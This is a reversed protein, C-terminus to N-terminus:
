KIELHKLTKKFYQCNQLFFYTSDFEFFRFTILLFKISSMRNWFRNRNVIVVYKSIATYQVATNICTLGRFLICAHMAPNSLREFVSPTCYVGRM